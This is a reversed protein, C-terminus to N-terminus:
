NRGQYHAWQQIPFISVQSLHPNFHVCPFNSKKTKMTYKPKFIATFSIGYFDFPIMALCVVQMPM